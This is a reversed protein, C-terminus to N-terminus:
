PRERAAARYRAILRRRAEYLEKALPLLRTGPPIRLGHPAMGRMCAGQLVDRLTDECTEPDNGFCIDRSDVYRSYVAVFQEEVGAEDDVYPDADLDSEGGGEDLLGALAHELDWLLEELRDELELVQRWAGTSYCADIRAMLRRAAAVAAWGGPDPPLRRPFVFRRLAPLGLTM